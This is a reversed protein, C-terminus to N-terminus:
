ARSFDNIELVGTNTFPDNVKHDVGGTHAGVARGRLRRGLRRCRHLSDFNGLRWGRRNNFFVIRGGCGAVHPDGPRPCPVCPSPHPHSAAPCPRRMAVGYPNAPAPVASHPETAMPSSRPSMGQSFNTISVPLLPQLEPWARQRRDTQCADLIWNKVTVGYFAAFVGYGM